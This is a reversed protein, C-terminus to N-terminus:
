HEEIRNSKQTPNFKEMISIIFDTGMYGSVVCMISNPFDYNSYLLQYIFGSLGGLLLRKFTEYTTLDSWEDSKIIIYAVAGIIGLGMFYIIENLTFVM